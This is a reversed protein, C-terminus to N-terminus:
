TITIKVIQDTTPTIKFRNDARYNIVWVVDEESCLLFVREKALVSLKEDKCYKSVKKKGKMGIPYFYDGEKWKRVILPYKLTKKDVYITKLDIESMETVEKFKLIGSPIMIMHEDEPIKYSQKTVIKNLPSLIIFTRDKILRHTSSFIQKGSQATLLDLIDDWATFGYEKLLLFLYGKPNEFGLLSDISIKITETGSYEFLEQKLRGVQENIFSHTTRLNEITTEFNQLFTHNVSLLEPIVLHRLKNRVYKTSKNSSDERWQLKHETAYQLIQDRSFPLLPRVYIDNVEPIGLLGEIGTGRSLNILFTELSDDLHHATLVYDFDHQNLLERFWDYRLKRAAMQTSLAYEKAYNNTEFSTVFFPIDLHNALNETFIQDGDSEEARLKFNCHAISCFMDLSHCLITLVVSDLGGSCAILVKKKSLFSLNTDIHSKFEKLM